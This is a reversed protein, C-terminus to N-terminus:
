EEVWNMKTPEEEVFVVGIMAEDMWQLSSSLQRKKADDTCITLKHQFAEMFNPPEDKLAQNVNDDFVEFYLLIM